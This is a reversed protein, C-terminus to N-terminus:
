RRGRRALRQIGPFVKCLVSIESPEPPTRKILVIVARFAEVEDATCEPGDYDGDETGDMRRQTAIPWPTDPLGLPHSSQPREQRRAPMPDRKLEELWEGSFLAAQITAAAVAETTPQSSTAPM